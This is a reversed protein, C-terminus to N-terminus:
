KVGASGEARQKAMYQRVTPDIRQRLWDAMAEEERLTQRCVDAVEADGCAEAMAILATYSAIEYNEFAYSAFTGKLVEDSALAHMWNQLNGMARLAFDKLTSASEGFKGLCRELRVIQQETETIHEGIRSKLEPYDDLRNHQSKLMDLAQSEVAYANRLGTILLERNSESM